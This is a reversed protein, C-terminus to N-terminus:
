AVAIKYKPSGFRTYVSAGVAFVSAASWLLPGAVPVLSVAGCALLGVSLAAPRSAARAWGTLREGVFVFLATMGFVKLAVATGLIVAAAPVRAGGPLATFSAVGALLLFVTGVIGSAAASGPNDEFAASARAVAGSAFRLVLSSVLTWLALAFLRLGAAIRWPVGRPSWPVRRTESLYLATLSGPTLIRGRVRGDGRVEGGFDVVDGAVDAGRELRVDGGWVVVDGSVPARVIVDGGLSAVHGDLPTAVVVTRRVSTVNEGSVVAAGLLAAAAIAASAALRRSM